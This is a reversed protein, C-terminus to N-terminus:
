TDGPAYTGYELQISEEAAYFGTKIAVPGWPHKQVQYLLSRVHSKHSVVLDM